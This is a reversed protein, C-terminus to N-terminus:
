LLTSAETEDVWGIQDSLIMVIGTLQNAPYLCMNYTGIRDVQPLKAEPFTSSCVLEPLQNL